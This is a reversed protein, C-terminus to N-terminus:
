ADTSADTTMFVDIGLLHADVALTDSGSASKRYVRFFLMDGAQPTGGITIASTEASIYLDNTTGGTDTVEQATGFAAAITDDDSVAVGQLGWVVGFNVTTAPHAWRFRATLTGENWSKPMSIAFQGYEETTPDFASYFYDPQNAAGAFSAVAACGGVASPTISGALVPIAHKGVASIQGVKYDLSNVDASGNIGIKAELAEVADNLQSHQAAHPVVLSDLFDNAVPNVFADIATPFVTPM